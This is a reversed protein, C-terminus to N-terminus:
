NRALVSILMHQSGMMFGELGITMCAPWGKEAMYNSGMRGLLFGEL